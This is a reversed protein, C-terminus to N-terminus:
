IGLWRALFIVGIVCGAMAALEAILILWQRINHRRMERREREKRCVDDITYLGM